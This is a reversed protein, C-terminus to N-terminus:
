FTFSNLKTINKTITWLSVNNLVELTCLVNQGFTQRTSYKM